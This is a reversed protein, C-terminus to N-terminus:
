KGQGKKSFLYHSVGWEKGQDYGFLEAVALFFVRWRNFWRISQSSGYVKEFIRMVEDKNKDLNVLWAESTKQYHTGDWSWEKQITLDKQFSKLLSHSPMQGGTFFYQGMWNDSGETEFVYPYKKHTFIHVFLKGESTLWRSIRSLMTEYNRLHEFMEVSIVRDFYNPNPGVTEMSRVDRTLIEINKLNQKAAQAMIFERQSSSNSVAIISSNPFRRAMSLTLSGWGCGLELIKMGDTIEARDMTIQLSLNEAEELSSCGEPWYACSYKRHPGLCGLFFEAPVEYHQDNAADTAIAVPAQKLMEIYKQIAQPDKLESESLSILREKCLKRIGMRVLPSPVMGLETMDILLNLM